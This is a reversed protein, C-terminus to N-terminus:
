AAKRTDSDTNPRKLSMGYNRGPGKEKSYTKCYYSLRTFAFLLSDKSRPNIYTWEPFLFDDYNDKDEPYTDKMAAFKDSGQIVQNLYEKALKGVLESDKFVRRPILIILHYHWSSQANNSVERAWFHLIDGYELSTNREIKQKFNHLLASILKNDPQHLHIIPKFVIYYEELAFLADAINELQSTKFGLFSKGAKYLPWYWGNHYFNTSKTIRNDAM